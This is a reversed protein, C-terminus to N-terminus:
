SSSRPFPSAPPLRSGRARGQAQADSAQSKPPSRSRPATGGRVTTWPLTITGWPPRIELSATLNGLGRLATRRGRRGSAKRGGGGRGASPAKARRRRALAILKAVGKKTEATADDAGVARDERGAILPPPAEGLGDNRNSGGEEPLGIPAEDHGEANEYADHINADEAVPRPRSWVSVRM